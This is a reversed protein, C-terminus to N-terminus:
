LGKGYQKNSLEHAIFSRYETYIYLLSRQPKILKKKNNKKPVFQRTAKRTVGTM